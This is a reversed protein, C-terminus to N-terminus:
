ARWIAAGRLTVAEAGWEPNDQRVGLTHGAAFLLLLVSAIRYLWSAKM